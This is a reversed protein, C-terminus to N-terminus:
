VGRIPDNAACGIRRRPRTGPDDSDDEETRITEMFQFSDNTIRHDTTLSRSKVRLTLTFEQIRYLIHQKEPYNGTKNTHCCRLLPWPHPGCSRHPLHWRRDTRRSESAATTRVARASRM